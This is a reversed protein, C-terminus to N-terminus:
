YIFSVLVLILVCQLIESQRASHDVVKTFHDTWIYELYDNVYNWYQQQTYTKGTIPGQDDEGDEDDVGTNNIGDDDGNHGDAAVTESDNDRAEPTSKPLKHLPVLAGPVKKLGM